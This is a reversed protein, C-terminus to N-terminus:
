EGPVFSLSGPRELKLTGEVQRGDSFVAQDACLLLPLLTCGAVTLVFRRMCIGRVLIGGNYSSGARRVPKSDGRVAGLINGQCAAFAGGGRSFPVHRIPATLRRAKTLFHAPRATAAPSTRASGGRLSRM